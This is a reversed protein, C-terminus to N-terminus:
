RTLWICAHLCPPQSVLDSSTSQHAASMQYDPGGSARDIPCRRYETDVVKQQSLRASMEPCLMGATLIQGKLIDAGLECSVAHISNKSLHSIDRPPNEASYLGRNCAVM